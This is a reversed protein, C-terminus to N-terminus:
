STSFLRKVASALAIFVSLRELYRIALPGISNFAGSWYLWAARRPTETQLDRQYREQLCGLRYRVAERQAAGPVRM